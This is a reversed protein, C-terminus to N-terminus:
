DNSSRYISVAAVRTLIQALILHVNKNKLNLLFLVCIKGDLQKFPYEEKKM